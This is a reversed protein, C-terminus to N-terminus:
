AKKRRAIGMGFLGIGLLALTGPEPVTNFQVNDVVEALASVANLNSDLYILHASDFNAGTFSITQDAADNKNYIITSQGVQTAGLFATLVARDEAFGPDDNGFAMSLSDVITAFTMTLGLNSGFTALGKGISQAGYNGVSLNTDSFTLLASDVSVFPSGKSGATDSEFDITILDANAAMPSLLIGILALFTSKTRKM